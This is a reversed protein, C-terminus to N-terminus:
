ELPKSLGFYRAAEALGLPRTFPVVNYKGTMNACSSITQAQAPLLHILLFVSLFSHILKTFIRNKQIHFHTQRIPELSNQKNIPNM